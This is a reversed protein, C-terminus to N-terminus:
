PQMAGLVMQVSTSSTAALFGGSAESSSTIRPSAALRFRCVRLQMQVWCSVVARADHGFQRGRARTPSSLRLHCAPVLNNALTSDAQM